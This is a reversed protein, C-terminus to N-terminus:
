ANRIPYSMASVIVIMFGEGILNLNSFTLGITALESTVELFLCAVPRDGM